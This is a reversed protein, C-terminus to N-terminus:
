NAPTTSFSLGPSIVSLPATRKVLPANLAIALSRSLFEDHPFALAIEYGTSAVTIPWVGHERMFDYSLSHAPLNPATPDLQELTPADCLDALIASLKQEAILELRLIIRVVDEQNTRALQSAMELDERPVGHQTRLAEKLQADFHATDGLGSDASNGSNLLAPTPINTM